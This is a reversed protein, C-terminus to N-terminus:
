YSIGIAVLVASAYAATGPTRCQFYLTGSQTRYPLGINDVVAFSNDNLNTYDGAAVEVRGVCTELEADTPDFADADATGLIDTHFLFMEIADDESDTDIVMFSEIVGHQPVGDFSNKAGFADGATYAATAVGLDVFQTVWTNPM